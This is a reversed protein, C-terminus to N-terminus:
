LPKEQDKAWEISLNTSNEADTRLAPYKICEDLQMTITSGLIHQFQTSIEPTLHKGM